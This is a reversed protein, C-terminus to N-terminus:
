KSASISFYDHKWNLGSDSRQGRGRDSGFWLSDICKRGSIVFALNSKRKLQVATFTSLWSSNRKRTTLITVRGGPRDNSASLPLFSHSTQPWYHLVNRARLKALPSFPYFYIFCRLFSVSFILIYNWRPRKHFIFSVSWFKYSKRALDLLWHEAKFIQKFISFFSFSRLHRTPELKLRSCAENRRKGICQDNECNRKSWVLLGANRVAVSLKSCSFPITKQHLNRHNPRFM